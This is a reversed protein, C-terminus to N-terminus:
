DNKCLEQSFLRWRAVQLAPSLFLKGLACVFDLVALRVHDPPERGLLSAQLTVVQLPSSWLVPVKCFRGSMRIPIHCPFLAFGVVARCGM